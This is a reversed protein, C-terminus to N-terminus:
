RNFSLFNSANVRTGYYPIDTGHNPIETGYNPIDTRHYPVSIKILSLFCNM